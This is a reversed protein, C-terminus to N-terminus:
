ARPAVQPVLLGLLATAALVVVVYGAWSLAPVWRRFETHNGFVFHSMLVAEHPEWPEVFDDEAYYLQCGNVSVTPM